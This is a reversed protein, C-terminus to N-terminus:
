TIEEQLYELSIDQWIIMLSEARIPSQSARLENLDAALSENEEPSFTCTSYIIMGGPKLMKVAEKLISHQLNVFMSIGNNEWASTMNSQKRFMGEGSCPADILIKDFFAPFHKALVNPPESTILTNGAGFMEINKLLAKARSNSIDNSVLLGTGNLKAALETSKGGPAACLDLVIDGKSVPLLSATTM